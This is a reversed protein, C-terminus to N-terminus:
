KKTESIEKIEGIEKIVADIQKDLSQIGDNVIVFDARRVIEDQSWQREIWNSAKEKSIKDRSTIRSIRIDLPATVVIVKDVLRNFGSEYLIACEMWEYGSSLFDDAVAPHVINDIAEANSESQLLFQAIAAKNLNGEATYAEKGVISILETKLKASTRMLRKAAADCDYVNIGRQELLKCVYSKGSGIGGTIAVKM